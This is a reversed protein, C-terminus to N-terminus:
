WMRMPKYLKQWYRYKELLERDGSKGKALAERARRSWKLYRRKVNNM